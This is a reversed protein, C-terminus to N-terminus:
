KHVYSGERIEACCVTEQLQQGLFCCTSVMPTVTIKISLQKGVFQECFSKIICLYTKKHYFIYLWFELVLAGSNLYLSVMWILQQNSSEQHSKRHIKTNDTNLWSTHACNEHTMTWLWCNSQIYSSNMFFGFAQSQSRVLTRESALCDIVNCYFSALHCPLLLSFHLAVKVM